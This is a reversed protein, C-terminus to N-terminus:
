KKLIGAPLALVPTELHYSMKKALSYNFLEEFFGRNHTLMATISVKNDEIYKIMGQELSATSIVEFHINGVDCELTEKWSNFRHLITESGLIDFHICHMEAGLKSALNMVQQLALTDEEKFDTTVAIIKSGNEIVVKEPVGLVPCNAKEMVEGTVSGLFIERLGTAGKTGMIILDAKENKAVRVITSIPSGEQMVNSVRVRSLNLDDAIKRLAPVEDRYDEFKELQISDYIDALTNPMHRPSVRPLEYAHVTIIEAGLNDAIKLAYAFAKNASESFDTPFVIKM